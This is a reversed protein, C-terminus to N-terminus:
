AGDVLQPEAATHAYDVLRALHVGFMGEALQQAPQLIVGTGWVESCATRQWLIAVPPRLVDAGLVALGLVLDYREVLPLAPKEYEEPEEATIVCNSVVDDDRTGM